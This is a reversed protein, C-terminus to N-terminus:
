VLNSLGVACADLDGFNWGTRRHQLSQDGFNVPWVVFALNFQRGLDLLDKLLGGAYDVNIPIHFVRLGLIVQFDIKVLRRQM